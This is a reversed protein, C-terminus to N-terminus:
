KSLYKLINAPFMWKNQNLSGKKDNTNAQWYQDNIIYSRTYTHVEVSQNSTFSTLDGNRTIYTIQRNSIDSSTNQIVIFEINQNSTFTTRSYSCLFLLSMLITNINHSYGVWNGIVFQTKYVRHMILFFISEM